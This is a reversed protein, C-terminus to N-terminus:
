VPEPRRGISYLLYGVPVYLMVAGATVFDGHWISWGAVALAILLTLGGLTKLSTGSGPRESSVTESM